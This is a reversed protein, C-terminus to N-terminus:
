LKVFMKVLQFMINYQKEGWIPPLTMRDGGQQKDSRFGSDSGLEVGFDRRNLMSMLQSVM